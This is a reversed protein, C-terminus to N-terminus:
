LVDELISIENDKTCILGKKRLESLANHFQKSDRCVGCDVARTRLDKSEIFGDTETESKIFNFLASQNGKLIESAPTKDPADTQKFVLSTIPQDFGDIIKEEGQFFIPAHEPADKTKTNTMECFLESGEPREIRYEFDVAGKLASSGRASKKDGKGTHHVIMVVCKYRDRLFDNVNNVFSNMESTSNEDSGGFNRALTDVVILAPPTDHTEILEDIADCVKFM